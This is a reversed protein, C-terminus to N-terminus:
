RDATYEGGGECDDDEEAQRAAPAVVRRWLLDDRCKSSFANLEHDAALRADVRDKLSNEIWGFGAELAVERDIQEAASAIGVPEHALEVGDARRPGPPQLPAVDDREEGVIVIRQAAPDLCRHIPELDVHRM